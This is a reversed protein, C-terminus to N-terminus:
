ATDPTKRLSERMVSGLGVVATRHQAVGEPGFTAASVLLLTRAGEFSSVLSEGDTYDGPRVRVGREALGALKEPSRVSVALEGAPVQGLLREVTLGGLRGTAGTVVIM